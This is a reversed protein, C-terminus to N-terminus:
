AANGKATANGTKISRVLPKIAGSSIILKKNEDFLSLNLIATVGYEQFTMSFSILDAFNPTQNPNQNPNPPQPRSEKSKSAPSM